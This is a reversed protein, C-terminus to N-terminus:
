DKAEELAIRYATSKRIDSLILYVLVVSVLFFSLLIFSIRQVSQNVVNRADINEMEMQKMAENEVEHLINFMNSVLINGALTLEAEHSLFMSSKQKQRVELRQIAEDIKAETNEKRASKITDTQVNLEEQVTQPIISEDEESKSKVGFLKAFFGREDKEVTPSLTRTTIKEKTTVVTSDSKPAEQILTSIDKIQNSFAQNDVLNKRVRVYSSFLKDRENLLIRISDIRKSQIDNPSYLSKLTDLSELIFESKKDLNSYNQKDLIQARQLQDIQLIDRSIRSVLRLKENPTSIKDVKDLMEDFAVKSIFYALCLAAGCSLIVFLVKQYVKSGTQNTIKDKMGM